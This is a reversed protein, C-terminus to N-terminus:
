KFISRAYAQKLEKALSLKKELDAIAQDIATIKNLEAAKRSVCENVHANLIRKLDSIRIFPIVSGGIYPYFVKAVWLSYVAEFAMPGAGTVAFCNPIPSRLPRGAHDGKAQIYFDAEQGKYTTVNM